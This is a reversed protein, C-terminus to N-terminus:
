YSNPTQRIHNCRQIGNYESGRPCNRFLIQQVTKLQLLARTLAQPATKPTSRRLWPISLPRMMDVFAKAFFPEGAVGGYRFRIAQNTLLSRGTPKNRAAPMASMTTTPIACRSPHNRAVCPADFAPASATPKIKVQGMCGCIRCGAGPRHGIQPMANTGADPPAASRFSNETLISGACRRSAFM